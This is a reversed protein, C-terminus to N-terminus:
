GVKEIVMSTLSLTEQKESNIEPFMFEINIVNDEVLSVPFEVAIGQSLMAEDMVYHFREDGNILIQTDLDPVSRAATKITMRLDGDEPLNEVPISLLAHSGKLRTRFGDNIGFGEVAYRNGTADANFLLADGLKYPTDSGNEDEYTHIIELAESDDATSETVYEEIISRSNGTTNLFMHRERIDNEKLLRFDEGYQQKELTEGAQTALYVALDFMSVPSHDTKYEGREDKEKFLFVPREAIHLDGHDATIIITSKDYLGLDKLSELYEGIMTFCGQVTEEREAGEKKLGNGDVLYPKHAGRMHYVRVCKDDDKLISIGNERYDSIFRPDNISYNSSKEMADDFEATDMWVYKKLYHPFFRASVLQYVKRAFYKWSGVSAQQANFNSFYDANVESFLIAESYMGVDYGKSSLMKLPSSDAWVEEKYKSYTDEKTFPIGTFMSPFGITTHAGSSLTNDYHIFGELIKTYEPNEKVFDQYYVEDMTDLVFIITNDEPSLDFEGKKTITIESYSEPKYSVLQVAFAPIQIVTLFVPIAIVAKKYLDQKKYKKLIHELVFPVALCAAWVATDALGYRTYDQWQIPTGDMVGNGYSINIYNGQIYLGLGIGLLVRCLFWGTKVPVIMLVAISVIMAIASVALIVRTIDSLSFWFEESNSLYLSYPGYLFCTFVVFVTIAIYASVITKDKKM